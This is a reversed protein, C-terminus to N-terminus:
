RSATSVNATSEKAALMNSIGVIVTSGVLVALDVAIPAHIRKSTGRWEHLVIDGITGFIIISALHITWSAFDYHGVKTQGMRYFFLQLYWTVGAVASFFSNSLLPAPGRSAAVAGALAGHAGASSVEEPVDCQAMGEAASFEAANRPQFNLYRHSSRNKLNLIVCRIFDTTLGGPLVVVLVPLNQWLDSGGTALLRAKAAAAIPKGVKLGCAFCSSVVRSFVATLM